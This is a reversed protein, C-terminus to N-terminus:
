GDSKDELSISNQTKKEDNVVECLPGGMLPGGMIYCVQKLMSDEIEHLRLIAEIRPLAIQYKFSIRQTSLGSLHDNSISQKLSDSVLLASKCHPNDPFPKVTSDVRSFERRGEAEAFVQKWKVSPGARDSARIPYASIYNGSRQYKAYDPTFALPNRRYLGKFNKPGLFRHLESRPNTARKNTSRSAFRVNTPKIVEIRRCFMMRADV